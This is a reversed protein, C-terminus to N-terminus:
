TFRNKIEFEYHVRYGVKVTKLIIDRDPLSIDRKKVRNELIYIYNYVDDTDRSIGTIFIVKYNYQM